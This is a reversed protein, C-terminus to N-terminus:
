RIAEMISPNAPQHRLAALRAWGENWLLPPVKQWQNRTLQAISIPEERPIIQSGYQVALGLTWFVCACLLCIFASKLIGGKILGLFYALGMIFLPSINIFFRQGFSAGGWWIAWGGILWVQAAAALLFAIYTRKLYRFLMLMYGAFSFLLVPSWIFLGRWGSFLVEWLHPSTWPPSFNEAAGYDRPGALWSGYFANWAAFQPLFALFLGATALAINKLIRSWPIARIRYAVTYQKSPGYEPNATNGARKRDYSPSLCIAAVVLLLPADSFRTIVSLGGVLGALFAGWLPLHDKWCIAMGMLLSALFFSNAHSMSPHLFMYFFLPSGFWIFLIGALGNFVGFQPIIFYALIALGCAAYLTSGFCVWRVYPESYGDLPDGSLIAHIHGFLFFPSWLLASGIGLPNGPRGTEPNIKGTKDPGAMEGLSRFHRYENTFDWDQDMWASRLYAYNRSGDNGHIWPKWICPILSLALVLIIGVGLAAQRQRDGKMPLEQHEPSCCTQRSIREIRKM